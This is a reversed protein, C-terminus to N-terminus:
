CDRHCRRRPAPGKPLARWPRPCRTGHALVTAALTYDAVVEEMKTLRDNLGDFHRRAWPPTDSQPPAVLSSHHNLPHAPSPASPRIHPHHRSLPPHFVSVMLAVVEISADPAVAESRRDGQHFAKRDPRVEGHPLNWASGSTARGDLTDTAQREIVAVLRATARSIHARRGSPRRRRCGDM